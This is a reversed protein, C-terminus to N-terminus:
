LSFLFHAAKKGEERKLGCSNIPQQSEYWAWLCGLLLSPSAGGREHLGLHLCVKYGPMAQYVMKGGLSEPFTSFAMNVSHHHKTIPQSSAHAEGGARGWALQTFYSKM